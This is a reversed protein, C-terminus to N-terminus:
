KEFAIKASGLRQKKNSSTNETECLKRANKNANAHATPMTFQEIKKKPKSDIVFTACFNASRRKKDYKCLLIYTPSTLPKGM